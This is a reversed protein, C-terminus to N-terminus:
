TMRVGTEFALEFGAEKWFAKSDGAKQYSSLSTVMGQETYDSNDEVHM